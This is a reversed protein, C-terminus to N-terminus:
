LHIISLNSKFVYFDCTNSNPLLRNRQCICFWYFQWLFIYCKVYNSVPYKAGLRLLLVARIM